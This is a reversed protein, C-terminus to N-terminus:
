ETYKEKIIEWMSRTVGSKPLDEGGETQSATFDRVKFVLPFNKTAGNNASLFLNHYRPLDKAFGEITRKDTLGCGIVKDIDKKNVMRTMIVNDVLRFVSDPLASPTNTVFFLNMGLHRILPILEDIYGEDMYMHAEEFFVSPYIPIEIRDKQLALYQKRCIEKLQDIVLTVIVKQIISSLGGMDFVLIGINKKLDELTQSKVQKTKETSSETDELTQISRSMRHLVTRLSVIGTRPERKEKIAKEEERAEAETCFINYSILNSIGREYAGRMMDQNGCIERAQDRLFQLDPKNGVQIRQEILEPLKAKVANDTPQSNFLSLQDFISFLSPIPLQDLRFRLNETPRILHSKPLGNYEGNIDFVISPMGLKRQLHIIGKTIHSKGGGKMGTILNVKEFGGAYVEVPREKYEGLLINIGEQHAIINQTLFEPSIPFIDVNRTVVKGEPERWEGRQVSARVVFEGILFEDIIEKPENYSRYTVTTSHASTLLRFLAKSDAQPYNAIGKSIIQVIVGNEIAKSDEAQSITQGRERLYLVDGVDFDRVKPYFIISGESGSLELLQASEVAIESSLASKSVTESNEPILDDLDVDPTKFGSPEPLNSDAM